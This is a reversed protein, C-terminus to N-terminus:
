AIVQSPALLSLKALERKLREQNQPKLPVMPSRFYLEIYGMMHLSTKVPIPNTEMFNLKMLDYYRFHIEKAKSVQGNRALKLMERFQRPIQNAIVSICGNGGMLTSALALSDDGSYVKFEGPKDQILSMINELSGSAEKVGCINQYENALEIIIDHPIVSSTRGPVNYIIIPLKTCSAVEEYYARIGDITPKNYAPSVVLLGDVGQEEAIIAKEIVDRTCSSGVGAILPVKGGVKEVLFESIHIFEELNITPSEGTTGNYLIGDTGNQLHYQVLKEMALYDVQGRSTFPTILAVISGNPLRM